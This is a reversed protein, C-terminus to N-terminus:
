AVAVRERASAYEGVSVYLAAWALALWAWPPDFASEYDSLAL